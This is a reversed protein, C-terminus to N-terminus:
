HYAYTGDAKTFALAVADADAQRGAASLRDYAAHLLRYVGRGGPVYRGGWQTRHRARTLSVCVGGGDMTRGVKLLYSALDALFNTKKDMTTMM